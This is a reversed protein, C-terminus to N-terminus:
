HKVLSRQVPVVKEESLVEDKINIAPFLDRAASVV